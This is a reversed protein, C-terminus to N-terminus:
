TRHRHLQSLGREYINIAALLNRHDVSEANDMCLDKIAQRGSERIVHFMLMLAHGTQTDMMERVTVESM